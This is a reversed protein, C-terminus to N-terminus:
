YRSVHWNRKLHWQVPRMHLRGSSAEKETATLLGILSMHVFLSDAKHQLSTGLAISVRQHLALLDRLDNLADSIEKQAKGKSLRSSLVAVNQSM